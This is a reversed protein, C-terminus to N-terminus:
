PGSTIFAYLLFLVLGFLVMNLIGLVLGTKALARPRRRLGIASLVIAALSGIIWIFFTVTNLTEGYLYSSTSISPSVFVIYVVILSSIIGCAAGAIAWGNRRKGQDPRAIPERPQTQMTWQSGDWYRLLNPDGSPDPYWGAPNDSMILGKWKDYFMGM